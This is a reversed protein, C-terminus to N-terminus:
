ENEKEKPSIIYDTGEIVVKYNEAYYIGDTEKKCVSLIDELSIQKTELAEQITITNADKKVFYAESLNNIYIKCGDEEGVYTKSVNEDITINMYESLGQENYGGYLLVTVCFITAITLVLTMLGIVLIRKKMINTGGVNSKTNWAM